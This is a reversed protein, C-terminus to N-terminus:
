GPPLQPVDMSLLSSPRAPDDADTVALITTASVPAIGEIKPAGAVPEMRLLRGDPGVWGLVTGACAGDNYSDATDEAVASFVWGGGPWPAGDTFGLPVGGVTGLDMRVVQLPAPAPGGRLLWAQVADLAFRICANIASGKNGRQLLHLTEGDVFAGEINLDAFEAHLLAYLASLNVIRLHAPEGTAGLELLLGQERQPKSGSGLALLTGLGSSPLVALAELDPKRRKRQAKDDPLDGDLLRHLQLGSGDPQLSALHHEDDAVLYLRGGLLVLGSAASLHAQGRPHAAADVLLECLFTPHLMAAPMKRFFFFPGHM